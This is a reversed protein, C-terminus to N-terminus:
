DQRNKFVTYCYLEMTKPIVEREREAQRGRGTEEGVGWGMEKETGTERVRETQRDTEGGEGKVTNQIM